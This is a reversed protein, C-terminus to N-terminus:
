FKVLKQYEIVTSMAYNGAEIGVEEAAAVPNLGGLLIVGVRNLEVPIQCVPGSTNGM